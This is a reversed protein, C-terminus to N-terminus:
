NQGGDQSPPVIIIVDRTDVITVGDAIVDIYARYLQPDPLQPRCPMGNALSMNQATVDFSLVAGPVVNQFSDNVGAPPVLDAITPQPACANAPTASVPVVGHIFCTTDFGRQLEAPDPRVVTTVTFTSFRVLAEIGAVLSQSLGVGTDDIQFSLPCTGASNPAIGVGNLGTCCQNAGCGAPRSGGFLDWACTPVVAGTHEALGYPFTVPDLTSACTTMCAARNAPATSSAFAVMQTAGTRSNSDDARCQTVSTTYPTGNVSVDLFYYGYTGGGTGNFDADNYASVAVYYPGTGSLTVTLRSDVNPFADFDDNMGLQATSNYVGVMTDVNSQNRYAFTEITVTQGSTAGNLVFWDVDTGVPMRITGLVRSTARGCIPTFPDHPLRNSAIGVIRAGISDIANLSTQTTVATIQPEVATYEPRHHSPADTVHVVIPLADNRFGVGGITGDAVGAVRNQAPNFAPVSGGPWSTGAGTAIQHLAEIGSEPIDYGNRTTLANVANQAVTRNSTVRTGLRFPIDLASPEGFTPIPYDEFSSVAFASDPVVRAVSPIITNSLSARLNAIEGAMSGTTDINIAVDARDLATDSFVLPARQEPGNPPLVFYFDDIVSARDCPNSGYAVEAPDLFGDTDSDAQVRSPGAPCGPEDGDALGDADSDVDLFDAYQDADANRPPTAVDADGAEVADRVGDGDSDLDRYNPTQDNDRDSSGETLDLIFDGDSDMDRFDGTGDRDTDVPPTAPNADGAEANDLISDNDSDIDIRDALGDLETDVTGEHVDGITDNDSDIDFADPTMDLDSDVPPTGPNQDGSEIEDSITDNDSDLDLYNPTMDIDPDAVGEDRDSVLDGDSDTDLFSPIQDMDPDTVGEDADDIDDGDSDEDLFSPTSDLDPDASGEDVDDVGDGDSDDDLYNPRMDGDPDGSGEVVDRIGDNDSDEDLYDPTMDRDTDVVGELEDSIGDGDADRDRYNPVRDNDPDATGEIMDPIGDNDADTERFDPTGDMDTDLPPTNPNTDGAEVDDRIGDNDSDDDASDPTGDMDTDVTGNGEESDPIGDNDRDPVGVGADVSADTPPETADPPGAEPAEADPLAADSEVLGADEAVGTDPAPEAADPLSGVDSTEAADVRVRGSDRLNPSPQDGCAVSFALSMLFSLRLLPARM